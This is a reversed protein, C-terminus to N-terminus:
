AANAANGNGSDTREAARVGRGNKGEAAKGSNKATGKGDARRGAGETGDSVKRNAKRQTDSASGAAREDSGLHGAESQENGGDAVSERQGDDRSGHRHEEVNQRDNRIGELVNPVQTLDSFKGTVTNGTQPGTKDIVVLQVGYTTGYKKYNDGDISLNARISYERRLKDWYRYYDGDNMGQGLIAVLRGGDRLRALAQDIHKEANSTKNNKTRGATSSFPPNMIVVNPSIHDPLINDIQEANENFLHDFGMARLVELRRKSLENVAVEAGWAKAFVALGGIGASPELVFDSSNINAAWAALYAINPPTSFQQYDEMEQTRVNQTPLLELMGQMFKVADVANNVDGNFKAAYGLLFKNVALELADYADKRNYTGEAQTGGFAIDALRYLERSTLMKRGNQINDENLYEALVMDALKESASEVASSAKKIPERIETPAIHSINTNANIADVVEDREEQSASWFKKEFDSMERSTAQKEDSTAQQATELPATDSVEETGAYVADLEKQIVEHTTKGYWVGKKGNWKFKNNKLVDRVAASPKEDFKIEISNFETNDTITYGNDSTTIKPEATEATTNENKSVVVEEVANAAQYSEVAEVAVNDFLQVISEVYRLGDGVQNKLANAERSPNHGVSDFYDRLARAFEKLKELLKDYISRHKHALQEVFSADPLIDTMAEAVVERSAEDYDLGTQEMKLEILEHVDEGRLTLTDFVVKRFENYRVPNWNEIFHTFEHSFTRLMTYKQLENVDKAYTLGANIDIYIANDNRSFKGQSGEFVGKDNAQSRYLVIDIGTAEAIGTLIKYAKNQPDNFAKKMDAIKVGDGRVTGKRRGSKGNAAGIIETQRSDAATKAAATGAEYALERQSETLYATSPSKMAYSLNVGSKGMDYAIQYAADYQGVDQGQVYTHVMAGAQAGYKKSAEELTVPEEAGDDEMADAPVATQETQESDVKAPLKRAPTRQVANMEDPTEGFSNRDVSPIEEAREATEQQRAAGKEPAASFAEQETEAEQVIRAYEEVTLVTDEEQETQLQEMTESPSEAESTEEVKGWESLLRDRERAVALLQPPTVSATEDMQGQAKRAIANQPDLRLVENVLVDPKEGYVEAVARAQANEDGILQATNIAGAPANMLGFSLASSVATEGLREAMEKGSYAFEGKDLKHAAQVGGMTVAEQAVEQATEKGVDVGRDALEKAIRKTLSDSANSKVLTKYADELKKLQFGEIGANVGGVAFAIVRATDGDIGLELMENYAHGAEIEANATMSAARMGALAATPMTIVEEPILVQPGAKGLAWAGAAGATGATLARPNTYQRLMQGGLEAAGSVAKELWNDTQFQYEEGALIERYKDAESGEVGLLEQFTEEGLRSNYYGRNFSGVTIDKLTADRLQPVNQMQDIDELYRKLSIIYSDMEANLADANEFLDGYQQLKARTDEARGLIERMQMAEAEGYMANPSDRHKSNYSDMRRFSSYADDFWSQVSQVNEEDASQNGVRLANLRDQLTGDKKGRSDNTYGTGSPSKPKLRNKLAQLDGM